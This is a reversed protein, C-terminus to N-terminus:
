KNGIVIAHEVKELSISDLRDYPIKDRIQMKAMIFDSHMDDEYLFFTPYVVTVKSIYYHSLKINWIGCQFVCVIMNFLVFLCFLNQLVIGSQTCTVVQPMIAHRRCM